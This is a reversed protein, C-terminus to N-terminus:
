SAKSIYIEADPDTEDGYYYRISSSGGTRTPVTITSNYVGNIGKEVTPTQTSNCRFFPLSISEYM